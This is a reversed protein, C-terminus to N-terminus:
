ALKNDFLPCNQVSELDDAQFIILEKILVCKNLDKGKEPGQYADLVLKKVKAILM